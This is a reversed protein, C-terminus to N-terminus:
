PKKAEPESPLAQRLLEDQLRDNIQKFREYANREAKEIMTLQEILKNITTIDGMADLVRTALDLHAGDDGAKRASTKNRDDDDNHNLHMSM